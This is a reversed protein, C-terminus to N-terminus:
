ETRVTVALGKLLDRIVDPQSFITYDYGSIAQRNGKVDVVPIDKPDNIIKGNEYNFGAHLVGELVLNKNYVVYAGSGSLGPYGDHETAFFDKGAGSDASKDADSNGPPAVHNFRIMPETTLNEGTVSSERTVPRNYVLCRGNEVEDAVPIIPISDGPNLKNQNAVVAVIATDAELAKSNANDRPRSVIEITKQNAFRMDTDTSKVYYPRQASLLGPSNIDDQDVPKNDISVFATSTRENKDAIVHSATVYISPTIRVLTGEGGGMKHETNNPNASTVNANNVQLTHQGVKEVPVSANAKDLAMMAEAGIRSGRWHTAKNDYDGRSYFDVSTDGPPLKNGVSVEGYGGGVFITVARDKEYERANEKVFDRKEAPTLGAMEANRARIAATNAGLLTTDAVEAIV